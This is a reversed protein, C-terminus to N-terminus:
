AFFNRIANCGTGQVVPVGVQLRGWNMQVSIETRYIDVKRYYAEADVPEM